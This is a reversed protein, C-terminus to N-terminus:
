SSNLEPFSILLSLTQESPLHHIIRRQARVDSREKKSQHYTKDCVKSEDDIKGLFREGGCM